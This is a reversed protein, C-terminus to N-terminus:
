SKVAEEASAAQSKAAEAAPEAQSKVAQAAPENAPGAPAGAQGLFGTAAGM